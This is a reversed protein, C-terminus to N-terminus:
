YPESDQSEEELITESALGRKKLPAADGGWAWNTWPGDGPDVLDLRPQKPAEIARRRPRPKLRAVSPSRSFRGLVLDIALTTIFYLLLAIGAGAFSAVGLYILLAKLGIVIRVPLLVLWLVWSGTYIFPSAVLSLIFYACFAVYYVPYVVLVYLPASLASLLGM